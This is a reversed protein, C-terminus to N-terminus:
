QSKLAALRKMADDVEAIGPDADKWLDLFKQYQDIAKGKWGKEEYLKALRYHYKPHILYRGKSNPDFTILREYEAIARELDGKQQYARALVDKLFPTNYGIMQGTFQLAPPSLPLAKEYFAIAKDYSGEALLVEAQLHNISVKALEKQSLPLEPYYSEMKALRTKASDIRGKKLEILGLIFSYGGKYFPKSRPYNKIFVEIWGENYKRSLEFEERDYYIWGKLWEVYAKGTISGAVEALDDAKQFAILSKELSGLWYHYFGKWLYGERKVGSSPAIAIEKDIWKMAEHYDEKLAYIYGINMYTGYFDPKIELAEKYKAIAEDLRGMRFYAEAMSDLPNADGPNFSIYKKFHEISKEFNGMELYTYGLANHVEGYNPDLELAKNLKEVAKDFNRERRYLVGLYYHAEKEKPYKKVIKQFISIRKEQNGEIFWAYGAEILLREKDTARQSLTKAKKIAENRAEINGLWSYLGALYFYASAFNPDLEVAKELSQRADDWYFKRVSEKGKIFYRYADMSSTTVDAIQVLAPEIKQRAIGIGQSIEKSLEDIQTELISDVGEGRSSASKLLRKTEVDLVKVDTAFINEAKIFSGLVIAEVGERRCLKFGLDRDIAEVDKKGIQQLLDRMREWTVVYLDGTQELSTILLNPIAKQLYDYAKDGTQNEFNIVAISNEIKPPLVAEKRPILRWVIVAAIVLAVVILAPIFLKKVGFTVTIERSTIPKRKPIERETTPIGEEIRSLESRLEGPSQYRKEKNKQMCKLIVHSLDSPVQANLEKPDRPAESKHKVGITFPTDGEFPVRGTVMEYLIVGLSYIDSRQDVEKGDVQEPSMYEPTGIMVGAGTIGKTKLSRAIGFDMILANGEKDIMINQPKLDRHVVGLRHAEALGECVQKAISVATGVSLQGSMRIMSKLDEGSVYEMTIFHTGKEEGLDFMRCVNRHAIMRAMKLENSFREIMKKDAAIEPKILKLAIEGKIKKDEVRYVKGMGGKGLEEIIEYRSAFITGRTLEKTPTELTKTLSVSIEESSPLPTACEKCYKSDSPNETNCKPCKNAM